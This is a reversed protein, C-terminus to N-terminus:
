LLGEKTNIQLLYLITTATAMRNKKEAPLNENM